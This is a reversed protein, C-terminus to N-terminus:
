NSATLSNLTLLPSHGVLEYLHEHHPTTQRRQELQSVVGEAIEKHKGAGQLAGMGERGKRGVKRERRKGEGREVEERGKGKESGEEGKGGEGERGGGGGGEERGGSGCSCKCVCLCM